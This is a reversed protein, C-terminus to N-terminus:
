MEDSISILRRIHLHDHVSMETGSYTQNTRSQFTRSGRVQTILGVLLDLLRVMLSSRDDRRLLALRPSHM